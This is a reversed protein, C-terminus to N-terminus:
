YIFVKKFGNNDEDMMDNRDISKRIDKEMSKRSRDNMADIQSQTYNNVNRVQGSGYTSYYEPVHSDGNGQSNKERNRKALEKARERAKSAEGDSEIDAWADQSQSWKNYKENMDENLKPKYTPDIKALMEFMLQKSDKTIKKM